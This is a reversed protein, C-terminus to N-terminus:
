SGRVSKIHAGRWAIILDLAVKLQVEMADAKHRDGGALYRLTWGRGCVGDMVTVLDPVDWLVSGVILLYDRRADTVAVMAAERGGSGGGGISVELCSGFAGVVEGGDDRYGLRYKAAEVRQAESLRKKNILWELGDKPPPPEAPAAAGVRVEARPRPLPPAKPLSKLYQAQEAKSMMKFATMKPM